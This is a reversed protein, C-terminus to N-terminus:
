PSESLPNNEENYKSPHPDSSPTSSLDGPKTALAKIWQALKDVWSELMRKCFLCILSPQGEWFVGPFCFDSVCPTESLHRCPSLTNERPDGSVM